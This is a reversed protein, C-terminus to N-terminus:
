GRHVRAVARAMDPLLADPIHDLSARATKGELTHVRSAVPVPVDFVVAHVAFPASEGIPAALLSPRVHVPSRGWADVASADREGLCWSDVPLLCPKAHRGVHVRVSATLSCQAFSM